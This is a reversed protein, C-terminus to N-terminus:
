NDAAIFIRSAILTRAQRHTANDGRQKTRRASWVSLEGYRIPTQHRRVVGDRTGRPLFSPSLSSFLACGRSDRGEAQFFMVDAPPESIEGAPSLIELRRASAAQAAVVLFVLSCSQTRTIVSYSIKQTGGPFFFSFCACM